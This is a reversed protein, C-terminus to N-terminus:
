PSRTPGAPFPVVTRTSGTRNMALSPLTDNTSKSDELISSTITPNCGDPNHTDRSSFYAMQAFAPLSVNLTRSIALRSSISFIQVLVFGDSSKPALGLANVKPASSSSNNTAFPVLLAMATMSNSGSCRPALLSWPNIGTPHYGPAIANSALRFENATAFM